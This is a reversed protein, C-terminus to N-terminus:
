ITLGDPRQVSLADRKHPAWRFLAVGRLSIENRGVFRMRPGDPHRVRDRGLGAFDPVAARRRLTRIRGHRAVRAAAYDVPDRVILQHDGRLFVAPLMQVRKGSIASGRLQHCWAIAFHLLPWESRVLARDKEIRIAAVDLPPM